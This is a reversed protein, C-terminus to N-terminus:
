ETPQNTPAPAPAAVAAEADEKSGFCYETLAGDPQKMVISYTM